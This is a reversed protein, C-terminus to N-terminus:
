ETRYFALGYASLQPSVLSATNSIFTIRTQVFRLGDLTSLDERFESNAWNLPSFDATGLDGDTPFPIVAPTILNGAAPEGFVDLSLADLMEERGVMSNAQGSRGRWAFVVATGVPQETPAPVTVVDTYRYPTPTTLLGVPNAEADMIATHARSTRIVVDMQGQYFFDDRPVTPLGENGATTDFGGTPDLEADPNKLVVAGNVDTGGTSFARFHPTLSINVARSMDFTNFSITETPYCRFEMLIPLGPTPVGEPTQGDPGEARFGWEQAPAIEEPQLIAIEQFTPVGGGPNAGTDDLSGFTQVATDRWTFFTKDAEAVGENWPMQLLPIGNPGAFVDATSITYGLERPHVTFPGANEGGLFNEEFSTGLGLGSLPFQPFPPPGPNIFEDPLMKAHGLRMEFEDYITAGAAGDRPSLSIGEIDLNYFLDEKQSIDLGVDMYRWLLQSRSGQASLPTELPTLLPVMAGPIPQIARDVTLPFREVPRPRITGAISDFLIQGRIDADPDGGLDLFDEDVSSFRMVWGGTDQEDANVDLEFEVQEFEEELVNGGLDTVGGDLSNSVINLFYSEITMSDFGTKTFPVSPRFRLEAGDSSPQVRGLILDNIDPAGLTPAALRADATASRAIYFNEFVDASAPDIPESFRVIVDAEPSVRLAPLQAASPSFRVYCPAKAAGLESRWPSLYQASSGLVASVAIGDEPGVLQRVPLNVVTSGVVTGASIVEYSLVASLEILDGPQPNVACDLVDYQLTLLLDEVAGTQGPPNSTADTVVIGQVGVISPAVSDVLFGNNPDDGNGARVAWVVDLTDSVFDVAGSDGANLPTDGLNTLLAFQGSATDLVTPFRVSVSPNTPGDSPPLGIGNIEVVQAIDALEDATITFDVILRSSRFKGDAAVGGYNPDVFVRADFPVSPPEGAFIKVTSHLGVTSEDILDSMVAVLAANRPVVTYPPLDTPGLGKSEVPDLDTVEFIAQAFEGQETEANKSIRLRPRGTVRSTSFEWKLESGTFATDIGAGIVFDRYVLRSEFNAPDLPDNDYNPGPVTDFIDVLRGWAMREISWQEAVGGENSEVIFANGGLLGTQGPKTAASGIPAPQAPGGGGGGSGCSSLGALLVSSAALTAAGFSRLSQRLSSPLAQRM